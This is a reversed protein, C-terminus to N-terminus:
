RSPVIDAVTMQRLDLTDLEIQRVVIPPGCRVVDGPYLTRSASAAAVARAVTTALGPEDRPMDGTEHLICSSEPRSPRVIAVLAIAELAEDVSLAAATVGVVGLYEPLYAQGDTHLAVITTSGPSPVPTTAWEGVAEESWGAAPPVLPVLRATAKPVVVLDGGPSELESDLTDGLRELSDRLAHWSPRGGELFSVLDSPALAAAIEEARKPKMHGVMSVLCALNVDVIDNATVLGLRPVDPDLTPHRYLAFQM